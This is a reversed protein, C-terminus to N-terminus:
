EVLVGQGGSYYTNKFEEIFLSPGCQLARWMPLM